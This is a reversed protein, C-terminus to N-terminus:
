YKLPSGVVEMDHEKFPDLGAALQKNGGICRFFDEMKGAPHLFYFMQGKDSLQVWTHPITRPLFILDGARLLQKETGLQFIYEGELVFFVEDQELHAHLRPGIKQVGIYDFASMKGATDKTSVKLDNPNVGMFPTPQYCRRNGAKVVFAKATKSGNQKLTSCTFAPFSLLSTIIFDRRHM